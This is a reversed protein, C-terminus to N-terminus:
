RKERVKWRLPHIGPALEEYLANLISKGGLEALVVKEDKNKSSFGYKKWDGSM